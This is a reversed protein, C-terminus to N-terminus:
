SAKRMLRAFDGDNASDEMFQDVADENVTYKVFKRPDIVEYNALAYQTFVPNKVYEGKFVDWILKSITYTVSSGAGFSPAAQGASITQPTTLAAVVLINGATVADALFFGTVTGYGSGTPAGFTFATGNGAVGSTVVWNTTNSTVSVRAYGTGSTSVETCATGPTITGTCLGVFLTTEATFTTGQLLAGYYKNILTSTSAGAHADQPVSSLGVILAVALAALAISSKRIISRM